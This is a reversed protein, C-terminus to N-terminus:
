EVTVLKEFKPIASSLLSSLDRQVYLKSVKALNKYFETEAHEEVNYSFAPVWAGLHAQLFEGQIKLCHLASEWDTGELAEIEKYILFYMFELEAAIHDPAERFTKAIELGAKRYLKQVEVTSEGMIQRQGDLYVSGYPPALLKFPGVFLKAYDIQLDELPTDYIEIKTVGANGPFVKELATILAVKNKPLEENPLAYCAALLQYAEGRLIDFKYFQEFEM